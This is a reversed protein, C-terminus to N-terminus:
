ATQLSRLQENLQAITADRRRLDEELRRITLGHYVPIHHRPSGMHPFLTTSSVHFLPLSLVQRAGPRHNPDSSLLSLVLDSVQPYQKVFSLPLDGKRLGQLIVLRESMTNFRPALCEFLMIGLAFMDAKGDCSNGSNQEPSAYIATGVGATNQSGLGLRRGSKKPSRLELSLGFDGLKVFPLETQSPAEAFFVNSPKVDRHVIGRSHIYDLAELIQSFVVVVTHSWTPGRDIAIWDALTWSSLLEM